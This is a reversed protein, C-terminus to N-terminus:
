KDRLFIEAHERAMAELTYGRVVDLAANAVCARKADNSLLENLCDAIPEWTDCPVIYGSEGNRIMECGAVCGETTVVPLGNAMAENVVLGWVDGRTALVFVDAARYYAQVTEKEAYEIFHLRTFGVENALGLWEEKPAGGVIYVGTDEPLRSAARILLDFGKLQLSRGVSLVVRRYPIGLATRAESKEAGNLPRAALESEYISSFPYRVIREKPVGFSEFFADTQKGTSWYRSAGGILLKKLARVLASENKLVGGDLEMEYPIKRAKLALIAVAETAYGYNTVVVHDYRGRRLFPLIKWDVRRERIDGESLFVATFNLRQDLNYNFASFPTTKAEFLVTLEVLKGLENFFNVRYPAPVNSIFLVKKKM